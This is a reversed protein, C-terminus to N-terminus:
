ASRRDAQRAHYRDDLVTGDSVAGAVDTGPQILARSKGCVARTVPFRADGGLAQGCAARKHHRHQDVKETRKLESLQRNAMDGASNMVEKLAAGGVMSRPMAPLMAAEEVKLAPNKAEDGNRM